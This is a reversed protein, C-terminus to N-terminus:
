NVGFFHRGSNFINWCLKAIIKWFCKLQIKKPNPKAFYFFRILNDMIPSAEATGLLISILFDMWKYKAGNLVFTVSNSVMAVYISYRWENVLLDIHQTDVNCTTNPSSHIYVLHYPVLTSVICNVWLSVMNWKQVM